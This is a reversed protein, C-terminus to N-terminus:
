GLKLDGKFNFNNITLTPTEKIDKIVALQQNLRLIKNKNNM